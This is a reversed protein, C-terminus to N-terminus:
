LDALMLRLLPGLLTRCGSLRKFAAQSDIGARALEIIQGPAQLLGLAIAKLDVDGQPTIAKLALPPLARHAPDSIVRLAVFPLQRPRAFDAAIHSEMDVAMAQTKAYLRAKEEVSMVVSDSGYIAGNVVSDGCANIGETLAQVFRRDTPSLTDNEAIANAILIDGPRLSPDLGGALGVSLVFSFKQNQIEALQQRLYQVNAGSCIIVVGDSECCAAERQMGTIFLLPAKRQADQDRDRRRTM